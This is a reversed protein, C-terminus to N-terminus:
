DTKENKSIKNNVILTSIIAVYTWFMFQIQPRFFITDVFGHFMVALISILSVSVFIIKENDISNLIFKIADRVLEVLFGLFAVLAFIGSEVAIELFINYIRSM